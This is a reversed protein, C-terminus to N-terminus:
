PLRGSELCRELMSRARSLIAYYNNVTVKLRRCVEKVGLGQYIMVLIRAHRRNARSVKHLCDLLKIKIMPEPPPDQREAETQKLMELKDHRSKKTRIYDLVNLELVRLTWGVFSKEIPTNRYKRAVVALSNQAMEEADEKNWIRHQAVVFFRASLESFLRAEAESSGSVAQQYLQNLDLIKGSSQEL